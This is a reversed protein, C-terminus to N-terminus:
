SEAKEMTTASKQKNLGFDMVGTEGYLLDTVILKRLLDMTDTTDHPKGFEVFLSTGLKDPYNATNYCTRL